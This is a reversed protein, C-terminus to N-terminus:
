WFDMYRRSRAVVLDIETAIGHKFIYVGLLWAIATLIISMILPGAYNDVRIDLFAIAALAPCATFLTVWLTRWNSRVVDGLGAGIYRQILIMHIAFFMLNTLVFVWAVTSLDRMAAPIILGIRIITMILQVKFLIKVQGIAKLIQPVFETVTWIAGAVSFIVLLPAIANWQDGFLLNVIPLAMLALFAFFPWAIVLVNSVSKLYLAKLDEGGRHSAAFTPMVVPYVGQLILRQLLERASFARNFLAVSTLGLSQGIILEAGYRNAYMCFSSGLAPLSFSM